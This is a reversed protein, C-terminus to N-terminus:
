GGKPDIWPGVSAIVELHDARPTRGDDDM